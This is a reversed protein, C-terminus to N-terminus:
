ALSLWEFDADNASLLVTELCHHPVCNRPEAEDFRDAQAAAEFIEVLRELVTDPARAFEEWEHAQATSGFASVLLVTILAFVSRMM